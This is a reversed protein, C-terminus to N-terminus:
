ESPAQAAIDTPGAKKNYRWFSNAKELKYHIFHDFPDWWLNLPIDDSNPCNSIIVENKSFILM